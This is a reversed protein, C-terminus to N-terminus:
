YGGLHNAILKAIRKLPDAVLAWYAALIQVLFLAGFLVLKRVSCDSMFLVSGFLVDVMLVPLLLGWDTLSRCRHVTIRGEEDLDLEWKTTIKGNRVRLTTRDTIYIPYIVNERWSGGSHAELESLTKLLEAKSKRSSYTKQM